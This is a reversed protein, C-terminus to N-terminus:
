RALQLLRVLGDVVATEVEENVQSTTLLLLAEICLVFIARGTAM